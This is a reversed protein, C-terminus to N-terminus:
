GPLGHQTEACTTELISMLPSPGLALPYWPFIAPVPLTKPSCRLDAAVAVFGAGAAGNASMVLGQSSKQVGASMM